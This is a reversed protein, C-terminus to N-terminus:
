VENEEILYNQNRDDIEENLDDEMMVPLTDDPFEDIVQKFTDQNNETENENMKRHIM